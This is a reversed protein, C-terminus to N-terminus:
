YAGSEIDQGWIALGQPLMAQLLRVTFQEKSHNDILCTGLM